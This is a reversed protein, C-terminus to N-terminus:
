GSHLVDLNGIAPVANYKGSLYNREYNEDNRVGKIEALSYLSSAGFKDKKVFDIQDRRMLRNSLLNTDHTSFIFQANKPNSEKSHFLKVISQSLKTHLKAEFEDLILIRGQSLSDLLCPSLRFIKKTGESEYSEFHWSIKGNPQNNNAFVDRVSAISKDQGSIKEHSLLNSEHRDDLLFIDSIGTDAEKLLTLIKEKESKVELRESAIKLMIAEHDGSIIIISSLFEIIKKPLNGNLAAVASLFLANSRLIENEENFLFSLRSGEPFTKSNVDFQMGERTFFKTERNGPKGFLWESIIESNTAEFGYRYRIKNVIFIIQFFTSEEKRSENLLHPEMARLVKEDKISTSVIRIFYGLAKILNSKGSANAGYIAKTKIGMLEDDVPFVNQKLWPYDPNPKLSSAVMSLTQLEKFSKYNEVSFELLM